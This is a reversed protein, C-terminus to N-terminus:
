FGIRWNVGPLRFGKIKGPNKSVPLGFNQRIVEQIVETKRCKESAM